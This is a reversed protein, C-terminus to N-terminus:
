LAARRVEHPVGRRNHGHQGRGVRKAPRPDFGWRNAMALRSVVGELKACANLPHAQQDQWQQLCAEAQETLRRATSTSVQVKLLTELHTAASAFQSTQDRLSWGVRTGHQIPVIVNGPESTECVLTTHRPCGREGSPLFSRWACISGRQERLIGSRMPLPVSSRSRGISAMQHVCMWPVCATKRIM